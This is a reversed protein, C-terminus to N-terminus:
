FAEEPGLEKEVEEGLVKIEGHFGDGDELDDIEDDADYRQRVFPREFVERPGRYM